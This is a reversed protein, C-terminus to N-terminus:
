KSVRDLLLLTLWPLEQYISGDDVRKKWSDPSTLYGKKALSDIADMAYKKGIDSMQMLKVEQIKDVPKSLALKQKVVQKFREFESPKNVWPLPCDKWGVVGKHTWLDKETLRHKKCLLACLDATNQFTKETISGNKDICMEIGVTCDNPYKGLKLLAEATYTKSGCHYAMENDPIAEYIDYDDVSYHASAYRASSTNKQNKLGDFYKVINYSSASPSATYHLVIGKIQKINIGPRSYPNVAILLQKFM